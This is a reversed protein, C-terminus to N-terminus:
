SSPNGKQKSPSINFHKKYATTFNNPDKFGVEYCIEAITLKNELLLKKAQGMRYNRILASPSVGTLKTTKRHLQVRGLGIIKALKDVSFDPTKFNDKIVELVKEILSDKLTLTSEDALDEVSEEQHFENNKQQWYKQLQNQQANVSHIQKILSAVSFPKSLWNIAGSELAEKRNLDNTNTTLILFPIHATVPTSKIKKCLWGGNHDTLNWESIILDPLSSQASNFAESALTATEIEFDEHLTSELFDLLEAQDEVILIKAKESTFVTKDIITEKHKQSEKQQPSIALAIQISSAYDETKINYEAGLLLALKQALQTNFKDSVNQKREAAESHTSSISTKQKKTLGINITLKKNDITQGSFHLQDGTIGLSLLHNVSYSVLKELKDFDLQYYANSLEISDQFLVGHKIVKRKCHEVISEISIKLNGIQPNLSFSNTEAKNWDLIQTFVHLLEIGKERAYTLDKVQDPHKTEQIARELPGIMLSLPTRIDHTISSFLRDRNQIIKENSQIELEVLKNANKRKIFHYTFYFGILSLLGLFLYIRNKFKKRAEEEELKLDNIKNIKIKNEFKTLWNKEEAEVRSDIGDWLINSFSNENKEYLDINGLLAYVRALTRHRVRKFRNEGLQDIKRDVINIQKEVQKVEGLLALTVCYDLRGKIEQSIRGKQDLSDLYPQIISKSEEYKEAERLFNAYERIFFYRFSFKIVSSHKKIHADCEEFLPKAKVYMDEYTLMQGYLSYAEVLLNHFNEKKGLDIAEQLTEEALVYEEDYVMQDGFDLLWHMRVKIHKPNLELLTDIINKRKQFVINREVAFSSSLLSSSLQDHIDACYRLASDRQLVKDALNCIGGLKNFQLKVTSKSGGDDVWQYWIDLKARDNVADLKKILSDPLHVPDSASAVLSIFLFLLLIFNRLM